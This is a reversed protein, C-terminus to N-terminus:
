DALLKLLVGNRENTICFFSSFLLKELYLKFCFVAVRVYALVRQLYVNIKSLHINFNEVQSASYKCLTVKLLNTGMNGKSGGLSRLTDAFNGKLFKVVIEWLM